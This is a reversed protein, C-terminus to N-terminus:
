SPFEEIALQMYYGFPFEDPGQAQLEYARSERKAMLYEERYENVLNITLSRPNAEDPDNEIKELAEYFAVFQERFQM